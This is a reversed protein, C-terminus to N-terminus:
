SRTKKTNRRTDVAKPSRKKGPKKRPPRETQGIPYLDSPNCHIADAVSVYNAPRAWKRGAKIKFYTTKSIGMREPADDNTVNNSALWSDILQAPPPKSAAVTAEAERKALLDCSRISHEIVTPRLAVFAREAVERDEIQRPLRDLHYHPLFTVYEAIERWRAAVDATAMGGILEVNQNYESISRCGEIMYGSYEAFAHQADECLHRILTLQDAPEMVLGGADSDNRVLSEIVIKLNLGRGRRRLSSERLQSESLLEDTEVDGNFVM